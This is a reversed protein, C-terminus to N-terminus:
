LEYEACDQRHTERGRNRAGAAGTCGNGNGSQQGAGRQRPCGSGDETCPGACQLWRTTAFSTLPTRLPLPLPLPPSPTAARCALLLVSAFSSHPLHGPAPVRQFSRVPAGTVVARFAALFMPGVRNLTNLAVQHFPAPNQMGGRCFLSVDRHTGVAWGVM